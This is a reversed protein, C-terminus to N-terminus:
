HDICEVGRSTGARESGPRTSHRRGPSAARRAGPGRADGTRAPNRAPKPPQAARWVCSTSIANLRAAPPRAPPSRLRHPRPGPRRRRSTTDVEIREGESHSKTWLNDETIVTRGDKDPASSNLSGLKASLGLKEIEARM